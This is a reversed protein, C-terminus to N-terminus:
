LMEKSILHDRAPLKCPVEGVSEFTTDPLRRWGANWEDPKTQDGLFRCYHYHWDFVRLSPCGRCTVYEGGLEKRHYDDVRPGAESLKGAIAAIDSM